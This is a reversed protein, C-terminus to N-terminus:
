IDNKYCFYKKIFDIFKYSLKVHGEDNPHANDYFYKNRNEDYVPNMGNDLLNLFPVGYYEARQKLIENYQILKELQASTTFNRRLIGIVGVAKGANIVSEITTDVSQTFTTSDVGYGVDNSGGYLFIIDASNTQTIYNAVRDKINTVNSVNQYVGRKPVGQGVLHQRETDANWAFGCEGIGYNLLRYGSLKDVIEVYPHQSGAGATISDGFVAIDFVSAELSELKSNISYPFASLVKNNLTNFFAIPIINNTIATNNSSNVVVLQKTQTDFGLCNFNGVFDLDNQYTTLTDDTTNIVVYRGYVSIVINNDRPMVVKERQFDFIIRDILRIDGVCGVSNLELTSQGVVKYNLICSCQKNLKNLFGIPIYQEGINGDSRVLVLKRSSTDFAICMFNGSASFDLDEQYNESTSDTTNLVVYKGYVNLILNYNRPIMVKSTNFNIEIEGSFRIDAITGRENLVLRDSYVVKAGAVFAFVGNVLKGLVYNYITRTSELQISSLNDPSITIWYTGSDSYSVTPSGTMTVTRGGCVFSFGNSLSIIKNTEDITITASPSANLMVPLASNVIKQPTVADNQINVSAISNAGVVAVSGGTMATRVDQTLMDMTIYNTDTKGRKNNALSTVSNEVTEIRENFSSFLENNIIEDFTGDVVMEDLKNDIEDQVDLNNFYENVYNQLQTYATLLRDVNTEMNGVDSIVNNLYVVVKNLLEYYSLSDDYVLPLVTQCWFRFPEQGTYGKFNPTFNANENPM